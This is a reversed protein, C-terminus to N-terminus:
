YEYKDIKSTKYATIILKPDKCTNMFVRILIKSGKESLIKHYVTKCNTEQIVNDPNNIAIRIESDSIKRSRMREVAHESFAFTEDM